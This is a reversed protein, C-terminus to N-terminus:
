LAPKVENRSQNVSKWDETKIILDGGWFRLKSIVADFNNGVNSILKYATKIPIQLTKYNAKNISFAIIFM